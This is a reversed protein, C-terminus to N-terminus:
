AINVATPVLTGSGYQRYVEDLHAEDSDRLFPWDAAMEEEIKKIEELEFDTFMPPRERGTWGLAADHLRNIANKGGGMADAPLLALDIAILLREADEELAHTAYRFVRSARM